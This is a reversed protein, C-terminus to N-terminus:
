IRRLNIDSSYILVPKQEYREFSVPISPRRNKPNIRGITKTEYEYVLRFDM